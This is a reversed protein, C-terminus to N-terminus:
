GANLHNELDSNRRIEELTGTGFGATRGPALCEISVSIEAVLVGINSGRKTKDPCVM